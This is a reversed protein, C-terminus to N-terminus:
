VRCLRLTIDAVHRGRFGAIALEPAFPQRAGDAIAEALRYIHGFMSNLIVHIKM